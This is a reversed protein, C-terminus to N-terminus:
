WEHTVDGLGAAASAAAEDLTGAQSDPSGELGALLDLTPILSRIEEAHEPFRDVYTEPDVTDGAQLKKSMEEVLEAIFQEGSTDSFTDPIENM